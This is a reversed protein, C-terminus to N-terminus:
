EEKRHEAWMKQRLEPSKLVEVGTAALVKSFNLMAEFAADTGADRQFSPHHHVAPPSETPIGFGPHLSPVEYSVNGQDTSAGSIEPMDLVYEQNQSVAVKQFCDAIARSCRLDKYANDWDFVVTCGAATAAGECCAILKQRTEQLQGDTEARACISLEAFEPIINCKEGGKSIIVNIRQNPSIQQRQMSISTYAAVAADLANRGHWPSNGAHASTGKFAVKTSALAMTRPLIINNWSGTNPGPHGMLCADVGRYAGAAILDIKGGGDEEAPTGLLRVRGDIGSHAIADATLLFAALSSTAILNHGCAHGIGPLADYEANYVVLAGGQGYEAEFATKMGYAHRTVSYGLGELVHCLTDHAYVENYALEPHSYIKYNVLKLKQEYKELSFVPHSNTDVSPLISGM